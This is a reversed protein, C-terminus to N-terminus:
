DTTREAAKRSGSRLVGTGQPRHSLPELILIWLDCLQACLAVSVSESLCYFDANIVVSDNLIALRSVLPKRRPINGCAAAIKQMLGATAGRAQQSPGLKPSSASQSETLLLNIIVKPCYHFVALRFRHYDM